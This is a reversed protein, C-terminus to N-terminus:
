RTESTRAGRRLRSRSATPAATPLDKLSHVVVHVQGHLLAEQQNATFASGGGTQSVTVLASTRDRDGLELIPRHTFVHEPYRERLPALYARVQTMALDSRRSGVLFQVAAGEM